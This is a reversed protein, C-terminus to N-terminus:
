RRAHRVKWPRQQGEDHGRGEEEGLQAVAERMPVRGLVPRSAHGVGVVAAIAMVIGNARDGGAIVSVRVMRMEVDDCARRGLLYCAVHGDYNTDGRHEQGIKAIRARNRGYLAGTDGGAAVGV